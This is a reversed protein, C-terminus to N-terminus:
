SVYKKLAENKINQVESPQTETANRVLKQQKIPIQGYIVAVPVYRNDSESYDLFLLYEEDKVMKRYDLIRYITNTKEDYGDNERIIIEDNNALNVGSKNKIIDEIKFKSLTYVMMVKQKREEGEGIFTEAYDYEPELEGTKIGKVIISTNQELESLDEFEDIKADINNITPQKKAFPNMLILYLAISSCVVVVLLVILSKKRIM